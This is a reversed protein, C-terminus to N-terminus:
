NFMRVVTQKNREFVVNSGQLTANSMDFQYIYHSLNLVKLNLHFPKFVSIECYLNMEVVSDPIM